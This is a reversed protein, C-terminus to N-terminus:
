YSTIVAIDKADTGNRILHAVLAKAMDIEFQNYAAQFVHKEYHQHNLWFLRHPMGPVMPHSLVNDGDKLSPYVYKRILESICPTMRRQTQLQDYPLIRAVSLM